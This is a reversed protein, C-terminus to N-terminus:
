KYYYTVGSSITVDGCRDSSHSAFNVSNPNIQTAIMGHPINNLFLPYGRKFASPRTSASKWGKKKLCNQLDTVRPIGGKNDKGSCGDFDQGGARLCQSVFNSCDNGPYNNYYPNYNRCYKLAYNAAKNGDYTIAIVLLSFLIIVKM